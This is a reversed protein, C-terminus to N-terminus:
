PCGAAFGSQFALFDFITLEGDGDFDAPCPQRVAVVAMTSVVSGEDNTVVVDYGDSQASTAPEIVLTDTDVGAYPGGEALPQGNRRWEFALPSASTDMIVSLEVRGGNAVVQAAEPQALFQPPQPFAGSLDVAFFRSVGDLTGRGVMVTGNNSVDRIDGLVWGTLDVGADLLYQEATQATTGTWVTPVVVSGAFISNGVVIQGDFTAAEVFAGIADPLLDLSETGGSATWRFPNVRNEDRDEREFWSAGFITMGDGSVAYGEGFNDTSLTGIDVMGTDATWRFPRGIATPGTSSVGTLVDGDASIGVARSFGGSLTGLVEFGEGEVWRIASGFPFDDERGVLVTGDDNTIVGERTRVSRSVIDAELSGIWRAFYENGLFPNDVSGSIVSGDLDIGAVRADDAPLLESVGEAATWRFPVIGDVGRYEGAFVRGDGSVFIRGPDPFLDIGPLAVIEQALAAPPGVVASLAVLVAPCCRIIPPM